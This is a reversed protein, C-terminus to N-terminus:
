RLSDTRWRDYALLDTRVIAATTRTELASKDPGYESIRSCGPWRTRRLGRVRMNLGLGIRCVGCLMPLTMRGFRDARKLRSCQASMEFRQVRARAQEPWVGCIADAVALLPRWNDAARNYLGDPVLPDATTLSFTNDKAWRAAKPCEVILVVSSRYECTPCWASHRPPVDRRLM